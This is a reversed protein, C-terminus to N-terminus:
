SVTIKRDKIMFSATETLQLMKLVEELSEYKSITGSIVKGKMSGQYDVEVDYWRAIKRMVVQIDEHEFQFKGNKWALAAETNGEGITLAHDFLESQQGPLLTRPSIPQGQSDGAVASVRVTGKLLTTKVCAEEVYANVNFMTGIVEIRQHNSIVIFPLNGAEKKGTQTAPRPISAIEFYGEGNLEVLRQNPDFQTPYRLSSAANLWVKSGDPLVVQYQGGKPTTITNFGIISSGASQDRTKTDTNYILVGSAIKKVVANSQTAIDGNSIEDLDIKRGDNLTLIAKNGGAVIAQAAPRAVVAPCPAPKRVLFYTAAPLSVLLVAAAYRMRRTWMLVPFTRKRPAPAPAHLIQELKLELTRKLTEDGSSDGQAKRLQDNILAQFLGDNSRDALLEMILEAEEESCQNKVLKEFLASLEEHNM